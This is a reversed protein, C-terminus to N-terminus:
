LNQLFMEKIKFAWKFRVPFFISGSYVLTSNNGMFLTKAHASDVLDHGTHPFLIPCCQAM